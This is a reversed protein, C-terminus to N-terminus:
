IPTGANIVGKLIVRGTEPEGGTIDDTPNGPGGWAIARRM